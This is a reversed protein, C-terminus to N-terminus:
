ATTRARARKFALKLRRDMTVPLREVHEVLWALEREPVHGIPDSPNAPKWREDVNHLGSTFMDFGTLYIHEPEYTLIDLLAAFGTTPVHGGLLDFNRKFEDLTPIYTDCFWFDKRAAYIYRFDVGNMKGHARHWSSEIALADPCKAMCLKVGGRILESATKRISSGFFSYFLDTRIGTPRFLKYNNVRCVLEHSDIFGPENDMVGPGSGVLAIRKGAIVRRVSEKDCFHM